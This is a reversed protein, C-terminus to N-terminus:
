PLPDLFLLHPPTPSSPRPADSPPLWGMRKSTLSFGLHQAKFRCPPSPYAPGQRLPTPLHPLHSGRHEDFSAIELTWLSPVAAPPTRPLFIHRPLPTKIINNTNLKTYPSPTPATLRWAALDGLLPLSSAPLLTKEVVSSPSSSRGRGSLLYRDDSDKLPLRRTLHACHRLHRPLPDCLWVVQAIPWRLPKWARHRRM